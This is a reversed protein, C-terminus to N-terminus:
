EHTDFSLDNNVQTTTQSHQDSHFIIETEMIPQTNPDLLASMAEYQSDQKSAAAQCEMMFAKHEERLALAREENKKDLFLTTASLQNNLQTEFSAAYQQLHGKMAIDITKVIQSEMNNIADTNSKLIQKICVSEEKAEQFTKRDILQQKEISDIRTDIKQSFSAFLTTIKAMIDVEPMPTETPKTPAMIPKSTIPPHITPSDPIMSAAQKHGQLVMLKTQRRQKQRPPTHVPSETGTGRNNRMMDSIKNHLLKSPIESTYGIANSDLFVLKYRDPPILTALSNLFSQNTLKKAQFYLDKKVLCEITGNIPNQVTHFLPEGKGSLFQSKIADLVTMTSVTSTESRERDTMVTNDNYKESVFKRKQAETPKHNADLVTIKPDFDQFGHFSLTRFENQFNVQDKVIKNKHADSLDLYDNWPVFTITKGHNFLRNFERVMDTELIKPTRLMAVRTSVDNSSRIWSTHIDFQWKYLTPFRNRVRKELLDLLDGRTETGVFFGIRTSDQGLLYTRDLQIREQKLWSLFTKNIKFDKLEKDTSLKFSCRFSDSSTPHIWVYRNVEDDDLDYLKKPDTQAPYEDDIAKIESNPVIHQLSSLVKSLLRSTIIVPNEMENPPSLGLSVCYTLKPITSAPHKPKSLLCSRPLADTYRNKKKGNVQQWDTDNASTPDAINDNSNTMTSPLDDFYTANENSVITISPRNPRRRDPSLKRKQANKRTKRKAKDYKKTSLSLPLIIRPTIENPSHAQVIEAFTPRSVITTTTTTTNLHKDISQFLRQKNARSKFRFNPQVTSTTLTSPATSNYASSIIDKTSTLVPSNTQVASVLSFIEDLETSDINLTSLTSSLQKYSSLFPNQPNVNTMHTSTSTSFQKKHTTSQVHDYFKKNHFKEELVPAVESSTYPTYPMDNTKRPQATTLTLLDTPTECKKHNLTNVPRTLLDLKQLPNTRSSTSCATSLTRLSTLRSAFPTSKSELSRLLYNSNSTPVIM